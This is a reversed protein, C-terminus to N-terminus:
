SETWDTELTFRADRLTVLAAGLRREHAEARGHRLARRLINRLKHLVPMWYKNEATSLAGSLQREYASALCANLHRLLGDLEAVEFEVAARAGARRWAREINALRSEFARLRARIECLAASADRTRQNVLAVSSSLSANGTTVNAGAM